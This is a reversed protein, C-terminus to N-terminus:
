CVKFLLFLFLGLCVFFVFIKMVFSKLIRVIVMKYFDKKYKEIKVFSYNFENKLFIWM